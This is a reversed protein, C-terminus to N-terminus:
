TTEGEDQLGDPITETALPELSPLDATEASKGLREYVRILILDQVLWHDRATRDEVNSIGLALLLEDWNLPAGAEALKKQLRAFYNLFQSLGMNYAFLDQEIRREAVNEAIQDAIRRIAELRAREMGAVKELFYATLEFLGQPSATRNPELFFRKAIRKARKEFDLERFAGGLEEYFSNRRNWEEAKSQTRKRRSSQAEWARSVITGYLPGFSGADAWFQLVGKPIRLEEYDAETGFNTAYCGIIDCLHPRDEAAARSWEEVVDQASKLLITSPFKLSESKDISGSTVKEVIRLFQSALLFTWGPESAFWFLARPGLRSTVKLTCLPYFQIAYLCYGCVPTGPRGGAGM